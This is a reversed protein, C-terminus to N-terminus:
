GLLARLTDVLNSQDFDGKVIYADAGVQIGRRKDEEKERSTIIIIPRNRYKDEQRLRETLTFGDMNPMEVDTLVADFDGDRAQNLGDLGDEALTVQYGHAELVDKEIERTNLSDDVVLIRFHREGAHAAAEARVAQGRARRALELLAPAHLVSVLENRGTTVIGSVMQLKRMHEPLPKIVMDREDLLEDVRLAIKEGRVRLVVLLMGASRNRTMGSSRGHDAPVRLLEALAVVPVFENRIIVANREAVTMLATEPLRLLEAVYQATFGFPHGDVEVLLVRMVALSLPLRLSFTTGQGLRTEVSVVGRLDDLVCQKVVDMGVGRGSLDTIISSTSFGPLFILDVAERDSLAAAKEPTLFGKKIAKERVAAIPIGGGDDTIDIAVWGGDQRATLTLRGQPPKGAAVRKDPTEIGHDIGNRILHIIPDSLRDIMQRDLEIETGSVVCEVQKGVSRALDRVLRAAPEFVIALPLMRMLLTKDHLEDMLVEQAQVDDRLVLGFHRLMASAQENGAAALEREMDRVDQLRQRLRAHSSVVEGMLKILEDLKNLRVRVTDATKLKQEAPATPSPASFTPAPSVAAPAPSTPQPPAAAPTVPESTKSAAETAAPAPSASITASAQGSAAQALAACLDADTPPLKSGDLTDALADVLSALADVARRLLQGLGADFKLSGDRLVGMVDELKHATETITTLKLMRSSGKITHASRFIANIGEQDASGAELESLGDNLRNIHDRAEEVFRVIFKGLDIAV